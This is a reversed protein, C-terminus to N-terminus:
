WGPAQPIVSNARVNAVETMLRLGSVNDITNAGQCINDVLQWVFALQKQGRGTQGDTNNVHM